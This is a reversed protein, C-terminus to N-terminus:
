AAAPAPEVVTLTASIVEMGPFYVSPGIQVALRETPAIGYTVGDQFVPGKEVLHQVITRTRLVLWRLDAAPGVLELEWGAFRGLGSTLFGAQGEPVGDFRRMTTWLDTPFDPPPMYANLTMTRWTDPSLILKGDWIGGLVSEGHSALFAGAVATVIRSSTLADIDDSKVNIAVHARHNACIAEADPWRGKSLDCIVEWGPRMPTEDMVLGVEHEDFRILTVPGSPPMDYWSDPEYHDPYLRQLAQLLSDGDITVPQDLLFLAFPNSTATQPMLM